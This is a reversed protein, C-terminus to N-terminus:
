EYYKTVIAMLVVAHARKCWIFDSPDSLLVFRRIDWAYSRTDDAVRRYKKILACEFPFKKILKKGSCDCYADIKPM